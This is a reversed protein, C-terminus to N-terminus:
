ERCATEYGVACARKHLQEVKEEDDLTRAFHVCALGDRLDCAKKMTAYAQEGSLTRAWTFCAGGHGLECGRQPNGAQECTEPQGLTCATANLTKARAPDRNLGLGGTVLNRALQACAFADKAACAKEMLDVAKKALAEADPGEDLGAGLVCSSFRGATCEKAAAAKAQREYDGRVEANEYVGGDPWEHDYRGTLVTAVNACSTAGGLDCGKAAISLARGPDRRAQLGLTFHTSAVDCAAVEGAFCSLECREPDAIHLAAETCKTAVVPVEPVGKKCTCSLVLASFLLLSGRM